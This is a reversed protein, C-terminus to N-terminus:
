GCRDGAAKSPTNVRYTKRQDIQARFPECDEELNALERQCDALAIIAFEPTGCNVCYSDDAGPEDLEHVECLDM